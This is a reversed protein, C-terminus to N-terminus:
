PLVSERNCQTTRRGHRRFYTAKIKDTITRRVSEIQTHRVDAERNAVQARLGRKGPYPIEQM